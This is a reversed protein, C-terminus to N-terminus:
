GNKLFPAGPAARESLVISLRERKRLPVVHMVPGRETLVCKEKGARYVFVNVTTTFM